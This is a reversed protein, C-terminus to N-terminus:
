KRLQKRLNCTMRNNIMRIKLVKLQMLMTLAKFNHFKTSSMKYFKKNEKLNKQLRLILRKRTKNESSRKLDNRKSNTKKNSEISSRYNL